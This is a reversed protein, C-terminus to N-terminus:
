TPRTGVTRKRPHHPFWRDDRPDTPDETYVSCKYRPIRGSDSDVETVSTRFFTRLSVLESLTVRESDSHTGKVKSTDGSM